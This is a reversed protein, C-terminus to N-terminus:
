QLAGNTKKLNHLRRWLEHDMPRGIEDVKEDDFLVTGCAFVAFAVIFSRIIM